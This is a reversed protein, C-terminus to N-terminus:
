EKGPEARRVEYGQPWSRAYLEKDWGDLLPCQNLYTPYLVSEVERISKAEPYAGNAGRYTELGRKVQEIRLRTVADRQREASEKKWHLFFGAEAAFMVMGLIAMGMAASVIWGRNAAFEQDKKGLRRAVACAGLAPFFFLPAACPVICAAGMLTSARVWFGIRSKDM